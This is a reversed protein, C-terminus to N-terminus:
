LGGGKCGGEGRGRGGKGGKPKGVLRIGSGSIDSTMREPFSDHWIPNASDMMVIRSQVM